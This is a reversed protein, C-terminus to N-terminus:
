EKPLLMAKAFCDAVADAAEGHWDSVCIVFQSGMKFGCVWGFEDDYEVAISSADNWNVPGHEGIMLVMDKLQQEM